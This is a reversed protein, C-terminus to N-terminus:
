TNSDWLCELLLQSLSVKNRRHCAAAGRCGSIAVCSCLSGTMASAMSLVAEPADQRSCSMWSLMFILSLLNDAFKM